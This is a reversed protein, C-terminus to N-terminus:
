RSVVQLQPPHNEAPVSEWKADQLRLWRDPLEILAVALAILWAASNWGLALIACLQFMLMPLAIWFVRSMGSGSASKRVLLFVLAMILVRVDFPVDLAGLGYFAAFALGMIVIAEGVVSLGGAEIQTPHLDFQLLEAIITLLSGTLIAALLYHPLEWGTIAFSQTNHDFWRGLDWLSKGYHGVLLVGSVVAIVGHWAIVLMEGKNFIGKRMTSMLLYNFALHVMISGLLGFNVFVITLPIGGLLQPLVRGWQQESKSAFNGLHALAWLANGLLFLVLYGVTPLKDGFVLWPVGLFLGRAILEELVVTVTLRMYHRKIGTFLAALKHSKAEGYIKNLWAGVAIIIPVEVVIAAAMIPLLNQLSNELARMTPLDFTVFDATVAWLKGFGGSVVAVGLLILWLGFATWAGSPQYKVETEEESGVPKAHKAQRPQQPEPEGMNPLARVADVIACGLQSLFAPIVM